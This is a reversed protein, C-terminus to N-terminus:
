TNELPSCAPNLFSGSLNALPCPDFFYQRIITIRSFMWINYLSVVLELVLWVTNWCLPHMFACINPKLFLYICLNFIQTVAYSCYIHLCFSGKAEALLGSHVWVNQARVYTKCGCRKHNPEWDGLFLWTDMDFSVGAFELKKNNKGNLLQSGEWVDM